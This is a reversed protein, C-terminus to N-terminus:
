KYINTALKRKAMKSNKKGSRIKKAIPLIPSARVSQACVYFQMNTQGSSFHKTWNLQDV